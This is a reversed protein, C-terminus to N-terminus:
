AELADAVSTTAAWKSIEADILAGIEQAMDEDYDSGFQYRVANVCTPSKFDDTLVRIDEEAERRKAWVNDFLHKYLSQQYAASIPKIAYTVLVQVQTETINAM